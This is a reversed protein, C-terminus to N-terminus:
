DWIDWNGITNGNLDKIVGGILDDNPDVLDSCELTDAVQRLAKALDSGTQMADNGLKIVLKLRMM